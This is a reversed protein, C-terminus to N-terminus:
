NTIKKAFFLVRRFVKYVPPEFMTPQFPVYEDFKQEDFQKLRQILNERSGKTSANKVELAMRLGGLTLEEYPLHEQAKVMKKAYILHQKQYELLKREYAQHEEKPANWRPQAPKPPGEYLPFKKNYIERRQEKTLGVLAEKEM